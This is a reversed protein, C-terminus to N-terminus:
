CKLILNLFKYDPVRMGMTSNKYLLPSLGPKGKLVVTVQGPWNNKLFKEQNKDVEAIKKADAVSNIFVLIAKDKPRKKISFIKEIAKKNQADCILGYVTNTPCVLVKGEKLAVLIKKLEEKSGKTIEM